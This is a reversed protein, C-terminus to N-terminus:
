CGSIRDFEKKLKKVKGALEFKKKPQKEARAKKELTAIEKELRERYEKDAIQKDLSENCNEIGGIQRVLNAYDQQLVRCREDTEHAIEEEIKYLHRNVNAKKTLM